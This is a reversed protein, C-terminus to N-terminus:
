SHRSGWVKCPMVWYLCIYMNWKWIGLNQIGLMDPRVLKLCCTTSYIFVCGCEMNWFSFPRMVLISHSCHWSACHFANGTIFLKFINSVLVSQLWSSCQAHTSGTHGERAWHVTEEKLHRCNLVEPRSRQWQEQQGDEWWKGSWHPPRLGPSVRRCDPLCHSSWACSERWELSHRNCFIKSRKM